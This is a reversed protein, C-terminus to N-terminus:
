RNPKQSAIILLRDFDAGQPDFRPLLQTQDATTEALDFCIIIGVELDTKHIRFISVPDCSHDFRCPCPGLQPLIATVYLAIDFHLAASASDSGAYIFFLVVIQANDASCKAFADDM